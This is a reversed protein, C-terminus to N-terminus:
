IYTQITERREKGKLGSPEKHISDATTPLWDSNRVKTIAVSAKYIYFNRLTIVKM